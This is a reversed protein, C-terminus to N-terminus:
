EELNINEYFNNTKNLKNYMDTLFQAAQSVEQGEYSNCTFEITTEHQEDKENMCDMSCNAYICAYEVNERNKDTLIYIFDTNDDNHIAEIIEDINTIMKGNEEIIAIKNSSEDERFSTDFYVKM